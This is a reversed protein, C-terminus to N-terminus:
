FFRCGALLLFNFLTIFCFSIGIVLGHLGIDYGAIVSREPMKKITRYALLGLCAGFVNLIIDDIDFRGLGSILQIVEILSSSGFGFLAITKLRDKNHSAFPLFFGLPMFTIINGIINVPAANQDEVTYRIISRLPVFNALALQRRILSLDVLSYQEGIISVPMYKLVAIRYLTIIYVGFALWCLLKALSEKSKVKGM